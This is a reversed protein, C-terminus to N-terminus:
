GDVVHNNTVIYGDPSIIIGSGIGHEIQPQQPQMPMQGFFQQLGPPLGQMMGSSTQSDGTARATVAVNVVAPTVRAAVAEMAHDLATLAEVSNDDIAMAAHVSGHGVFLAAGLVFAGVVAAPAALNKATVLENTSFKM